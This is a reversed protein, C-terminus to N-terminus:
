CSEKDGPGQKIEFRLAELQGPSLELRYTALAAEAAEQSELGSAICFPEAPSDFLDIAEVVWPLEHFNTKMKKSM